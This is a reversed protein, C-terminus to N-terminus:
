VNYQWVPRAQYLDFLLATQSVVAVGNNFIGQPTLGPYNIKEGVKKALRTKQKATMSKAEDVTRQWKPVDNHEDIQEDLAVPYYEELSTKPIQKLQDDAFDTIRQKLGDIETNSMKQKDIAVIFRKAYISESLPTFIKELAASLRTVEMFDGHAPLVKINAAEPYFREIVKNLFILESPGEVIIFNRPLLLDTPSGGMLEYVLHQKDEHGQEEVDSVGEMKEVKFLKEESDRAASDNTLLVSSHTTMFVQDGQDALDLLASKLYRQAKPHLHLEGEDILFLFDKINEKDRRYDAFTQIIALMLARQMGDGKEYAETEVGDDVNATFNKFLDSLDPNKVQFDVKTTEPFQKCLYEKVKDAMSRMEISIRSEGAGFLEYFENIFSAYQEDGSALIENLLGSLMSGIQTTKGYKLVEKLNAETKVYELNPLFDNLARDFGTGPDVFEEKEESWIQRTSKDKNDFKRVIRVADVEGLRSSLTTKNKENRMKELADQVGEFAVEVCTTKREITGKRAVDPLSGVGSFFWAVADLFNTKGHNNQGIILNFDALTINVEEISKFDTIKIETVKM